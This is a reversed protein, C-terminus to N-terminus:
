AFRHFTGAGVHLTLYGMEVKKERLTALLEHDFICDRRPHPSRAKHAAYVTQYREKDSEDPSRHMYPPLPIQGISEIVDLM